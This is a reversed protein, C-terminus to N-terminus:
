KLHKDFFRVATEWSKGDTFKANVHGSNKFIKIDVDKGLSDLANKLHNAYAVPVTKDNEGHMILVPCSINKVRNQEISLKKMMSDKKNEVQVGALGAGEVVAVKIDRAKEGASIAAVTCFGGMSFGYIGIREADVFDINKLIEINKLSRKVNEDSGGFLSHDKTKDLPGRHTLDTAILVYGAQALPFPFGNIVAVNKGRGGGGHNVIIAPFSGKGPPKMIYREYKEDPANYKYAVYGESDNIKIIQKNQSNVSCQLSCLLVYIFLNLLIKLATKSNFIQQVITKLAM